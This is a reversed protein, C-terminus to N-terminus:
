ETEGDVSLLNLFFIQGQLHDFLTWDVFHSFNTFITYFM